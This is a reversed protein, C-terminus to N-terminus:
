REDKKEWVEILGTSRKTFFASRVNSVSEESSCESLKLFGSKKLEMSTEDLSDTVYCIHYPISNVNKQVIAKIPSDMEKDATEVLEITHQGNTMFQFFLNRRKDCIKDGVLSYGLLEFDSISKEINIVAYGIHNIVM